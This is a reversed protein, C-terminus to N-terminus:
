LNIPLYFPIASVISANAANIEFVVVAIVSKDVRLPMGGFAAAAVTVSSYSIKM